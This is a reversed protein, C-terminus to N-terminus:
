AMKTIGACFNNITAAGTTSTVVFTFTHNVSCCCADLYLDTETHVGIRSDAVLTLPKYTCPLQVGDMYVAFVVDGATVTDIAIDAAIHYLGKTLTTLSQLDNEISVGTDVVRTGLALQTTGGVAVTQANNNYYRACSKYNKNKVSNGCSMNYREKMLFPVACAM